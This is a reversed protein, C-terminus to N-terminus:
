FNNRVQNYKFTITINQELNQSPAQLSASLITKSQVEADTDILNDNINTNFSNLVYFNTDDSFAYFNVRGGEFCLYIHM